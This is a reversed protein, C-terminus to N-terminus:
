GLSLGECRLIELAVLHTEYVDTDEKWPIKGQCIYGEIIAYDENRLYKAVAMALPQRCVVTIMGASRHNVTLSLVFVTAPTNKGTLILTPFGIIRGSIICYNV